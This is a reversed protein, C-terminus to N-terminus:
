PLIQSLGFLRERPSVRTCTAAEVRSNVTPALNLPGRVLYGVNRICCFCLGSLSFGRVLPIIEIKKINFISLSFLIVSTQCCECRPDTPPMVKSFHVFVFSYRNEEPVAFIDITKKFTLQSTLLTSRRRSVIPFKSRKPVNAGKAKVAAYHKLADHGQDDHHM